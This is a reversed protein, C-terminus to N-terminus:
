APPAESGAAVPNATLAKGVGTGSTRAATRSSVVAGAARRAASAKATDKAPKADAMPKARRAPKAPTEPPASARVEAALSDIAAFWFAEGDGQPRGAQEWLLYARERILSDTDM